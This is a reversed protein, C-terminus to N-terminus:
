FFLRASIQMQRPDQASSTILGFSADGVTTDYNGLGRINLLNQAEVRLQLYVKGERAISFNKMLSADYSNSHPERMWPYVNPVNGPTLPVPALFQSENFARVPANGLNGWTGVNTLNTATLLSNPNGNYNAPEIHAINGSISGFLTGVGDGSALPYPLDNSFQFPTGTHFIWIGAYEWGGVIGDLIKGGVGKPSAQRQRVQPHSGSTTRWHRAPSISAGGCGLDHQVLHAPGFQGALAVQVHIVDQRDGNM